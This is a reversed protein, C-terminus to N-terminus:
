GSEFDALRGGCGTLVFTFFTISCNNLTLWGFIDRDTRAFLGIMKKWLFHLFYHERRTSM